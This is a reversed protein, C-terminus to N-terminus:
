GLPQVRGVLLDELICLGKHIVQFLHPYKMTRPNETVVVSVTWRLRLGLIRVLGSDGVVGCGLGVNLLKGLFCEISRLANDPCVPHSLISSQTDGHTNRDASVHVLCVAVM